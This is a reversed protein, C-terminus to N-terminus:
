KDLEDLIAALALCKAEKKSPGIGSKTFGPVSCEVIFEPRTKTSAETEGLERFIPQPAGTKKQYKKFRELLHTYSQAHDYINEAEKTLTDLAARAAEAEAAKKNKGVGIGCIREGVSCEAVYTPAHDPGKMTVTYVPVPLRRGREACWEQLRNKASGLVVRERSELYLSVDLASGIVRAVASLDKESDIYVAGIISEFLDEMVSPENQIDLKVDGEGMLLYDQIGLKRISESLNTKDSLRSKINSFDGEGFETCIGYKYRKSNEETLMTAVAISLVSDGLFELVENSQYHIGSGLNNENCFSTRTFAQALLSKDRFTYGLKKEVTPICKSFDSYKM